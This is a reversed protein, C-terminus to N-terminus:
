HQRRLAPRFGPRTATIHAETIEAAARRLNGPLVDELVTDFGARVCLLALAAGSIPGGTGAGIIAVRRIELRIEAM